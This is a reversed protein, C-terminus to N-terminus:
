DNSTRIILAHCFAISDLQNMDEVGPFPIKQEPEPVHVPVLENIERAVSKMTAIHSIWAVMWVTALIATWYMIKELDIM